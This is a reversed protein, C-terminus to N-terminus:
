TEDESRDRRGDIWGCHPCAFIAVVVGGLVTTERAEDRNTPDVLKDAQHNMETGCKPCPHSM